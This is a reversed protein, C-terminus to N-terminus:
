GPQGQNPDAATIMWPTGFRDRVIGFAPSFFAEHIALDVSGGEALAEFVRHAEEVTETDFNVYIGQMAEFPQGPETDSAMLLADDLMLAIHAMRSDDGDENGPVASLPMEFLEGGFVEKYRTFAERANGDFNLYPHFAM